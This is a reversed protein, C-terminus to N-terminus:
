DAGFPTPNLTMPHVQDPGAPLSLGPGVARRAPGASVAAAWAAGSRGSRALVYLAFCVIVTMLVCPLKSDYCIGCQCKKAHSGQCTLLLCLPPARAELGDCGSGGSAAHQVAAIARAISHSARHLM